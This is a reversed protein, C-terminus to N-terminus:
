WKKPLNVVVSAVAGGEDLEDISVAHDDDDPIGPAGEVRGRATCTPCWYPGKPFYPHLPSVVFSRGCGPTACAVRHEAM